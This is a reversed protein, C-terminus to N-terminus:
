PYIQSGGMTIVVTGGDFTYGNDATLEACYCEGSICKKRDSDTTCNTLANTVTYYVNTMSGSFVSSTIDTGGMTVKIDSIAYGSDAKVTATYPQYQTASTASNDTTVDTLTNTVTYTSINPTVTEPTGDIMAARFANIEDATFGLEAAFTVCKDRFTSGSKANIANILGTWESENRRRAQDDTATGKYFCTLEYDKDIDSQSMGLIGELVCALTGTRDAGASCHFYVPEGHIASNFVTGLNIKWPAANAISYIAYDTACTYFIDSGIPSVTIGGAESTGRLDLDHRIGLEEVLEAHSRSDAYGGRFLLGYKVTGGDAAWGGLDRVNPATTQIWRVQDLPKLTGAKSDNAFATQTNPEQNYYTESGATVGIPRYNSEVATAPAYTAIESTTYDSADYTVNAIYNRVLEPCQHWEINESGSIGSIKTPMDSLAMTGSEGTKSRIADAVATLSADLASSDVVKDIAM